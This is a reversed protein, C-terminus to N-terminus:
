SGFVGGERIEVGLGASLHEFFVADGTRAIWGCYMDSQTDWGWISLGRPALERQAALLLSEVDTHDLFDDDLPDDVGFGLKYSWNGVLKQLCLVCSETDSWDIRYTLEWDTAETVLWLLHAFREDADERAALERLHDLRDRRAYFDPDISMLLGGLYAEEQDLIPMHFCPFIRM